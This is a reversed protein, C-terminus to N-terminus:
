ANVIPVGLKRRGGEYWRRRDQEEGGWDPPSGGSRSGQQIPSMLRSEGLTVSKIKNIKLDWEFPFFSWILGVRVSPVIRDRLDGTGSNKEREHWFFDTAFQKPEGSCGLSMQIENQIANLAEMNVAENKNSKSQDSASSANGRAAM